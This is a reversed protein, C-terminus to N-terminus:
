EKYILLLFTSLRVLAESQHGKTVDCDWIEDVTQFASEQKQPPPVSNYNYYLRGEWYQGERGIGGGM